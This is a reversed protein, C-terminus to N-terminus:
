LAGGEPFAANVGSHLVTHTQTQAHTHTYVQTPGVSKLNESPFWSCCISINAGPVSRMLM